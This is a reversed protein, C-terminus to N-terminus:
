LVLSSYLLSEREREPNHEQSSGLVWGSRFAIGLAPSVRLLESDKQLSKKVGGFEKFEEKKEKKFVFNRKNIFQQEDSHQELWLLCLCLSFPMEPLAPFSHKSLALAGPGLHGFAGFIPM